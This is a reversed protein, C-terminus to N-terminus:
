LMEEMLILALSVYVAPSSVVLDLLQQKEFSCSGPGGHM